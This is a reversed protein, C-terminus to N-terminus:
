AAAQEPTPPQISAIDVLNAARAALEKKENLRQEAVQRFQPGKEPHELLAKAAASIQEASAKQGAKELASKIALKALSLAERGVPDAPERGEGAARVNFQYGADYEAIKAALEDESGTWDKVMKASNNRVNEHRLQNLASAEGDTLIHGAEYPNILPFQKGAITVASAEPM